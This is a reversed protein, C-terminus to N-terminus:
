LPFSFYSDFVNFRLGRLIVHWIRNFSIPGPLKKMLIHMTLSPAGVSVFHPLLNDSSDLFSFVNIFVITLYIILTSNLFIYLKRKVEWWSSFFAFLKKNNGKGAIFLLYIFSGWKNKLEKRKWPDQCVKLWKDKYEEWAVNGKGWWMKLELAWIMILHAHGHVDLATIQGPNTHTHLM